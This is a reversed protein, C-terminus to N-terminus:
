GRNSLSTNCTICLPAINDITHAVSNDKRDATLNSTPRSYKVEFIFSDGCNCCAKGFCSKLWDVTIYKDDDYKRGAKKDQDKYGDIKKKLYGPLLQLNYEPCKGNYFFVKDLDRSRTIATWLWKWSVCPHNWDFITISDDISAGQFSHCTRCYGHIFNAQIVDLPVIHIKDPLTPDRISLTNNIIEMIEYKFNVHFTHSKTKLYKRCIVFEGIEYDTQKDLKQRVVNSVMKCTENMLAINNSTEINNVFKFYKRLTAYINEGTQLEQKLKMLKKKQEEKKLRKIEKLVIYNPFITLICHEMYAISDKNNTLKEVPELQDKDGTGLIIKDPNLEAYRKIRALMDISSFYLEDFIIVDYSSDDFKSMQSEETMGVSFFTNLTIGNKEQALNNTPCVVLVNCGLNSMYECLWSKGTGPYEGFVAVRKHEFFHKCINETDYENPVVIQKTELSTIKIDINTPYTMQIPPYIIDQIKSTRWHGIGPTFDLLQQAKELDNAKLTFADNKVSYVFIGNQKLTNYSSNILHNHHQMLLEKIYRFGNQLPKTDSLNLVYLPDGKTTTIQTNHTSYNPDEEIDWDLVHRTPPTADEVDTFQQLTHITGGFKSQQYTAEDISDFIFSMVKKNCSKELLGFNINSILKKIYIELEKEDSIKM